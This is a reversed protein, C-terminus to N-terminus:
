AGAINRVDGHALGAGGGGQRKVAYMAHDAERLLRAVSGGAQHQAVGVSVSPELRVGDVSVPQRVAEVFRKALASAAARTHGPLVVVLEDGGYRGVYGDDAVVDLVRESVAALLADGAAHGHQDNVQKLRDLDVVAVSLPEGTRDAHHVSTTLVADLAGRVLAGTVADRAATGSGTAPEAYWLTLITGTAGEARPPRYAATRAQAVVARSGAGLVLIGDEGPAGLDVDPGLAEAVSDGPRPERGRVGGVLRLASRTAEVLRGHHDFAFAHVELAGLPSVAPAPVRDNYRVVVVLRYLLVLAATAVLHVGPVQVMQVALLGVLLGMLLALPRRTADRHQRREAMALIALGILVTCYAAQVIWVAVFGGDDTFASVHRRPWLFSVLVAPYAAFIAHLAAPPQWRSSVGRRAIVYFSQTAVAIVPLWLTDTLGTPDLDDGALPVIADWLAVALGALALIGTGYVDRHRLALVAVGLAVVAALFSATAV